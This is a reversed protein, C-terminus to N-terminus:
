VVPRGESTWQTMGGDLDAVDFGAASLLEAARSSRRGSRCVTIIPRAPDLEGLRAPLDGLPINFSGAIRGEALEAPERVDLVVDIEGRAAVEAPTLRPVPM